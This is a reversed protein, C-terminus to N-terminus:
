ASHHVDTSDLVRMDLAANEQSRASESETGSTGTTSTTLTSQKKVSEYGPHLSGLLRKWALQVEKNLVCFFLFIFFGQFSNSLAFIVQFALDAKSVTLAGFIWTLGFLISISATSAMLQLITSRKSSSKARRVLHRVFVAMVTFFATFNFVM